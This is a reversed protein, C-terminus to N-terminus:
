IVVDLPFFCLSVFCLTLLGGSTAIIRGSHQLTNKIASYSDHKGVTEETFRTLLFLSYDISMACICSSMLAPAVSYIDIAFTIPYMIGFSVAFSVSITCLPIIMLTLSKLVWLLVFIAIPIVSVDMRFLSAMIEDQLDVSGAEFGTVGAYYNSDTNLREMEKRLNKIFTPIASADRDDINVVIMTIDGREGVFQKKAIDLIEQDISSNLTPLLFFGSYSVIIKQQDMWMKMSLSFDKTYNTIVNSGDKTKITIVNKGVQFSDPFKEAVFSNAENALTGKPPEIFLSTSGLFKLAPYCFGLACVLWFVIIAYRLYHMVKFICNFVRDERSPFKTQESSNLLPQNDAM